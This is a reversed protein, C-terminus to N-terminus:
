IMNTTNEQLQKINTDDVDSMGRKKAEIRYKTDDSDSGGMGSLAAFASFPLQSQKNGM